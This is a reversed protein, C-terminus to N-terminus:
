ISYLGLVISTANSHAVYINTNYKKKLHIIFNSFFPLEQQRKKQFTDHIPCIPHTTARRVLCIHQMGNMPVNICSSSAYTCFCTHFFTSAMRYLTHSHTIHIKYTELLRAICCFHLFYFFLTHIKFLNECM